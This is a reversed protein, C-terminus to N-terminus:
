DVVVEGKRGWALLDVKALNVSIKKRITMGLSEKEAREKIRQIREPM